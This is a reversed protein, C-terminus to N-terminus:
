ESFRRGVGGAVRNPLSLFGLEEREMQEAGTGRWFVEIASETCQGHVERFKDAHLWCELALGEECDPTYNLRGTNELRGLTEVCQLEESRFEPLNVEFSLYPIPRQIRRIVNLEYGEVDIKILIPSGHASMLQEVTTTEVTKKRSFDLRSNGHAHRSKNARLATAWKQSLTNVASGPEDIWM